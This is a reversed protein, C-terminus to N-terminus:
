ALILRELRVTFGPVCSGRPSQPFQVWSGPSGCGLRTMIRAWVGVMVLSPHPAPFAFLRHKTMTEFIIHLSCHREIYM